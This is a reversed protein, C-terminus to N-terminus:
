EKAEVGELLGVAECVFRAGSPKKSCGSVFHGTEGCYMCRGEGRRVDREAETLRRRAASLDM